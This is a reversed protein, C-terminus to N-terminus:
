GRLAIGYLAVICAMSATWVLTRLAGRDFVYALSYAIRLAPFAWAFLPATASTPAALHALIAASAFFPFTEFANQHAWYARQKWGTLSTQWERTRKNERAGFGSLKTSLTLGYPIASALFIPLVTHIVLPM